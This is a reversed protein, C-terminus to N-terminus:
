SSYSSDSTEVVYVETSVNVRSFNKLVDTLFVANALHSMVELRKAVHICTRIASEADAGDFTPALNSLSLIAFCVSDPRKTSALIGQAIMLAGGMVLQEDMEVSVSYYTINALIQACMFRVADDGNEILEMM